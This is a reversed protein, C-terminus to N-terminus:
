WIGAATTMGKVQSWDSAGKFIAGAGLFGIGAVLGQVVRTMADASAGAQQPVIVFLAAGMSVLMHTRMGASKGEKEREYGLAGGLLAAVGLRVLGRGGGAVDSLDSFDDRVAGAAQEWWASMPWGKGSRAGRARGICSCVSRRSRSWACSCG